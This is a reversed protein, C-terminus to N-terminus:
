SETVPIGAARALRAQALDRTVLTRSTAAATAIILVGTAKAARGEDRAVAVVAGYREAVIEDVPIPSFATRLADLRAQRLQRAPETRALFVGAHLEGLTVVSIAASRPLEGVSGQAAIVVSTDLLAGSM